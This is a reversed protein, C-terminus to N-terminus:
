LGNHPMLIAPSVSTNTLSQKIDMAFQLWGACSPLIYKKDCNKDNQGLNIGYFFEQFFEM